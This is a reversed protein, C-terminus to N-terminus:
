DERKIGLEKLIKKVEKYEEKKVYFYGPGRWAPGRAPVGIPYMTYFYDLKTEKLRELLRAGAGGEWTDCHFEGILKYGMRKWARQSIILHCLGGTPTKRNYDPHDAPLLLRVGFQGIDHLVEIYTEPNKHLDDWTYFDDGWIGAYPEDERNLYVWRGRFYLGQYYEEDLLHCEWEECGNETAVRVLNQYLVERLEKSADYPIMFIARDDTGSQSLPHFDDDTLHRAYPERGEKELELNLWAVMEEQWTKKPVPTLDTKSEGEIQLQTM